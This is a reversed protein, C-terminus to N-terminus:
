NQQVFSLAEGDSRIIQLQGDELRYGQADSLFSMILQEQEMIGEPEMCAMLTSGIESMEISNGGIKYSGFYSNCGASGRIEGDKFDAIIRTGDIPKIKGYSLLVWSTHDLPDDSAQDILTCASLFTLVAVLLTLGFVNRQLM